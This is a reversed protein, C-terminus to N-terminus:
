QLPFDIRATRSIRNRSRCSNRRFTRWGYEDIIERRRIFSKEGEVASDVLSALEPSPDEDQPLLGPFVRCSAYWQPTAKPTLSYQIWNLDPYANAGTDAAFYLTHTKREGGQLEYGDDFYKPFLRVLLTNKETELAKPFNQWFYQVAAAISKEGDSLYVTPCIRHGEDIKESGDLVRYGRFTHRVEGNRNVHNRSQWNEGGSSDQYVILGKSLTPFVRFENDNALMDSDPDEKFAKLAPVAIEDSQFPIHVTLDKFFLAGESGLDWLGGPHKAMNENLLTFDMRVLSSKMYFHIYAAFSAVPCGTAKRFTGDCKLTTRVPGRTTFTIHEIHPLAEHNECDVLTIRTGGDQLFGTNEVFIQEFPKFIGKGVSFVASGTDVRIAKGSEEIKIASAIDLSRGSNYYFLKLIKSSNPKLSIQFDLLLWRISRDDWYALICSQLPIDGIDPDQMSLVDTPNLCGKPWPIGMTVPESNRYIGKSEEVNIDIYDKTM